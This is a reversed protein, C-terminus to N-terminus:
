LNSPMAEVGSAVTAGIAYLLAEMDAEKRRRHRVCMGCLVPLTPEVLSTFYVVPAGVTGVGVCPWVSNRREGWWVRPLPPYALNPFILRSAFESRAM